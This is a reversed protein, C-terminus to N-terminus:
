KLKLKKKIESFPILKQNKPDSLAEQFRVADEWDEKTEQWNAYTDWDLVVYRPKGNEKIVSPKKAGLARSLTQTTM